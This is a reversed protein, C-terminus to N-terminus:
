ERGTPPLSHTGVPRVKLATPKAALVERGKAAIASSRTEVQVARGPHPRASVFQGTTPHRKQM